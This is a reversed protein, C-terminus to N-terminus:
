VRRGWLGKKRSSGLLPMHISVRLVIFTFCSSRFFYDVIMFCLVDWKFVEWGCEFFGNFFDICIGVLM